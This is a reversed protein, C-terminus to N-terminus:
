VSFRAAACRSFADSTISIPSVGLTQHPFNDRGVRTTRGIQLVGLGPSQKAAGVSEAVSRRHNM